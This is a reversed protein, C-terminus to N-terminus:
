KNNWVVWLNKLLLKSALLMGHLHCRKDTYDPYKVKFSRKSEEYCKRYPGVWEVVGDEDKRFNQKILGAGILYAISRRRPSYGFKEWEEKPLKGVTKAYNKWTSGMLTKGNFSWPVCGLRRYLKQVAGCRAIGGRKNYRPDTKAYNRYNRLDGTEGIVIGLFLLGFGLQDRDDVWSAVPLHKARKIMEKELAKKQEDFATVGIMTVLVIHALPFDKRGGAVIEKILDSAEKFKKLRDKEAMDASYGLEGAVIARIRNAMMNRSKLVIARQRQLTQLEKSLSSISDGICIRENKSVCDDAPKAKGNRSFTETTQLKTKSKTTM